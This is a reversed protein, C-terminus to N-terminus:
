DPSNKIAKILLFKGITKYGFGPNKTLDDEWESDQFSVQYNKLLNQLLSRAEKLSYNQDSNLKMMQGNSSLRQYECAFDFILTGGQKLIRDIEKFINELEKKEFLHLTGTCFVGDFENEQFPFKQTMDMVQIDLKSKRPSFLNQEITTLMSYDIDSAVLQDVKELLEPIYRGDGAALNLWKGGPPISKILDLTIQEGEGWISM